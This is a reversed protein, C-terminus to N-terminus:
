GALDVGRRAKIEGGPRDMTAHQAFLIPREEVHLIDAPVVRDVLDSAVHVEMADRWGALDEIRGTAEGGLHHDLRYLHTDRDQDRAGAEGCPPDVERTLGPEGQDAAGLPSPKDRESARFANDKVAIDLDDPVLRRFESALSVKGLVCHSPRRAGARQYATAACPRRRCTAADAPRFEM